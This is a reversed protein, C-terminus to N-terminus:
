PAEGHFLLHCQRKKRVLSRSGGVVVMEAAVVVVEVRVGVEEVAVVM